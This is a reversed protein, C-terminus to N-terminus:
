GLNIQIRKCSVLTLTILIVLPLLCTFSNEIIKSFDIYMMQSMQDWIMELRNWYLQLRTSPEIIRPRARMHVVM